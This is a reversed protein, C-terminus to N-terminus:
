HPHSYSIVLEKLVYLPFFNGVHIINHVGKIYSM